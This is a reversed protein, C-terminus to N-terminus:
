LVFEKHLGTNHIQFGISYEEYRGLINIENGGRSGVGCKNFRKYVGM